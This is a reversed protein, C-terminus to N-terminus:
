CVSDANEATAISAVCLAVSEDLTPALHHQSAKWTVTSSTHRVQQCMWWGAHEPVRVRRIMERGYRTVIEDGERRHRIEHIGVVELPIQRVSLGFRIINALTDRSM